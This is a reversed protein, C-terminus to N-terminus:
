GSSPFCFVEAVSGLVVFTRVLMPSFVVLYSVCACCLLGCLVRGLDLVLRVLSLLGLVILVIKYTSLDEPTAEKRKESSQQITWNNFHYIVRTSLDM